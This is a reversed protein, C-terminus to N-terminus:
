DRVVSALLHSPHELDHYVTQVAPLPPGPEAGRNTNRDFRPFDASSIDVRVRHGAKFRNATAWMDIEFRYIRGPELLEPDGTLNRYRARLLGNQLQIARGDPFVDSLRAAFDTDFADSSAYLILRLPGVIDLDHELPATTYTLVDSRQQVRSVDASGPRYVYSIISGAVTPTPDQPDYVYRDPQSPQRPPEMTLTGAPGLYLAFQKAEPVPWDSAIRWQNAGMLYYIVTPWSDTMRERVTEYWLLMLDVNSRHNHRLEPHEAEGEHYGSMNHAAPTIVLRSRTAVEPRAERRYVEWSALVDGVNWDYWAAVVLAPSHLRRCLEGAGVSPIAHAGYTIQCDFVTSLSCQEVYSFESVRMLQKLLEARQAPPLSCYHKWLWRKADSLSVAHLQPYRELLIQPIPSRLPEDFYGTAMTEDHILREIETYPVPIRNAGKGVARPYGNVLMHRRVTSRTTQLGSVEPVIASMHPHAAMCWQTAAVYSAGFSSLFGDFWVQQRVWDVFDIGDEPEFIFYDWVDPGSDGTGRCDQSIVVYGRRALALIAPMVRENARGYPTRTAAAPAPLAPPLYIDTALRVGDRMTVWATERRIEAAAFLAPTQPDTSGRTLVYELEPPLTM